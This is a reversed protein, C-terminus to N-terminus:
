IEVVKEKTNCSICLKYFASYFTLAVHFNTIKSSLVRKLSKNMYSISELRPYCSLFVFLECTLIHRLHRDSKQHKFYDTSDLTELLSSLTAVVKYLSYGFQVEDLGNLKNRRMKRSIFRLIAEFEINNFM